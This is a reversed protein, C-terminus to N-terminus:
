SEQLLKWYITYRQHHLSYFPVLEVDTPSGVGHLVFTLPKGTVPEISALIKEHSGELSSVPPTPLRNIATSRTHSDYLHVDPMNETGLARVLVVPGYLIVVWEPANPLTELRLQMPMQVDIQDGDQWRRDISISM